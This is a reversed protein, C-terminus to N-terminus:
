WKENIIGGEVEKKGREISGFMAYSLTHCKKERTRTNKKHRHSSGRTNIKQKLEM